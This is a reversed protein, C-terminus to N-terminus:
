NIRDLVDKELSTIINNDYKRLMWDDITIDYKNLFEDRIRVIKMSYNRILNKLSKNSLKIQRILSEALEKSTVDNNIIKQEAWWICWVACFGNPDGIKKCLSDEIIELM